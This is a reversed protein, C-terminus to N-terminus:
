LRGQAVMPHRKLMHVFAYVVRYMGPHKKRTQGAKKHV